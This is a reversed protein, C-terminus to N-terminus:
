LRFTTPEFGVGAVVQVKGLESGCLGSGSLGAVAKAQRVECEEARSLRGLGKAKGLAHRNSMQLIGALDGHLDIALASRSENPTLVIKEILNRVLQAAQDRDESQNLSAILQQVEAHYRHAMNPHILVPSVEARELFDTLEDKRRALGNLEDKILAPDCGGKIADILKQIEREARELEMERQKRSTSSEIRVQNLYRTYERCFMECLRPEMLRSRLAGLVKEELKREHFTLRNACTGKNRATSCGYHQASVKSFGGGCEGCKLLFSFLKPPRKKAMFTPKEDLKRQFAKVQDWLEQDVIRLEPVEVRVWKSSDNLRSVRKGTDPNKRYRLRNWLQIGVYLENNLIGTGRRRNGHIATATWEGGTPGLIGEANLEFAMKRPSKGAVYDALIRNIVVAEIENIARDGRIPEGDADFKRVVDYGYSKGGACKGALARGEQGRHTKEGLQTLMHANLTGNMGVHMSTVKGESLTILDIGAFNLRKFIHAVDEQDRSIRDLAESLVIEFLGERADALLSQLGPRIMSAGSIARDTYTGVIAWGEAAAKARCIRLQDDISADTQLESSYRAYIACNKM